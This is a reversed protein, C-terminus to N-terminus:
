ISRSIENVTSQDKFLESMLGTAAGDGFLFGADATPDDLVQRLNQGMYLLTGEAVEVASHYGLGVLFAAAGAVRAVQQDQRGLSVNSLPNWHNPDRKNLTGLFQMEHTDERLMDWVQFIEAPSGSMHGVLPETTTTVRLKSVHTVDWKAGAIRQNPAIALLQDAKEGTNHIGARPSLEAPPRNREAKKLPGVTSSGATKQINQIVSDSPASLGRKVMVSRLNEILADAQELSRGEVAKKALTDVYLAGIDGMLAIVVARDLGAVINPAYPFRHDDLVKALIGLLIEVSEGPLLGERGFLRAGLALQNEQSLDQILSHLNAAAEGLETKLAHGPSYLLNRAALTQSFALEATRACSM